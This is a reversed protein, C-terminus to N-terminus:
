RCLYPIWDTTCTSGNM